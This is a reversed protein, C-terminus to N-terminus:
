AEMLPTLPLAVDPYTVVRLGEAEAPASAVPAVAVIKGGLSTIKQILAMDIDRTKLDGLFIVMQFGPRVLEIPGHRFQGGSLVTCHLKSAEQTLLAATQASGFSKGRGVYVLPAQVDLFQVVSYLPPQWDKLMQGCAEAAHAIEKCAQQLGGRLAGGLLHQCAFGGTYSKSSVTMEPGAMSALRVDAWNALSNELQNTVSITMAPRIGPLKTLEVIEGSEGSQSTAILLCRRGIIDPIQQVLESTDVLCVPVSLSQSLQLYLPYSGHLSGGMGTLLVRDFDGDNLRSSIEHLDEVTKKAPEHALASLMAPQELIEDLYSATM